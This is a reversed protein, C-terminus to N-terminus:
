NNKEKESKIEKKGGLEVLPFQFKELTFIRESATLPIKEWKSQLSRFFKHQFHSVHFDTM